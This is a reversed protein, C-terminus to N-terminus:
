SMYGGFQSGLFFCLVIVLGVFCQRFSYASKELVNDNYIIREDNEEAQSILVDILDDGDSVHDAWDTWFHGTVHFRRPLTTSVAFCAVLIFLLASFYGLLPNPMNKANIAVITGFATTLTSFHLARTEAASALLNLNAIRM